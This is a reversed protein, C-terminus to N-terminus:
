LGPTTPEIGVGSVSYIKSKIKLKYELNFDSLFGIQGGYYRHTRRITITNAGGFEKAPAKVKM